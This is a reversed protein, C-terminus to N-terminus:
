KQLGFLRNFNSTTAEDIAAVTEGRLNAIAEVILPLNAPENSQGRLPHPALYPSDTEVLLRDIPTIKAVEKPTKANLFTVPGGLSIYLGLDVYNGVMEASGSYCHMIGGYLPRNDCLIKYTDYAADRTHVIIPKQHRNAINIQEIFYKKQETQIKEDKDWYYDLGIEGFGVVKTEKLMEEIEKLDNEGRSKIDTPHVGVAAYVNPFRKALAVARRSSKVDYGVVLFSRVGKEMAATIYKEPNGYFRDHNLHCHSDIM